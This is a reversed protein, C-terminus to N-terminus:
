RRQRYRGRQCGYQVAHHIRCRCQFDGFGGDRERQHRGSLRGWAQCHWLERACRWFRRLRRCRQDPFRRLGCQRQCARRLFLPPLLVDDVPAPFDAPYARGNALHLCGPPWFRCGTCASRSEHLRRQRRGRAGDPVSIGAFQGVGLRLSRLAARNDVHLQCSHHAPISSLRWRSECGRLQRYQHGGSSGRHCEANAVVRGPRHSGGRRPWQGRQYRCGASEYELLQHSPNARQAVRRGPQSHRRAHQPVLRCHLAPEALERDACM